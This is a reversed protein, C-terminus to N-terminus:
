FEEFGEDHLTNKMTGQSSAAASNTQGSNRSDGNGGSGADRTLKMNQSGPSVNKLHIERHREKVVANRITNNIKFKEMMEMIGQAQGSMEESASATEEVLASNQQTMNDLEMVAVNIQDIGNKQEESATTIENVIEGVNKVAQVIERLAEGSKNALETAKDVKDVSDNILGGIEKAAGSSRQALNRVEGAVVAFGRGQDGARAAEVAANLALLNTQFAIENIVNIIEAIRKSSQNVENIASVAESVVSGGEEAINLTDGSMKNAQKANDANQGITATSEELTSAIEELSSAQESTRQSLTENGSSIEQVAQALNQNAAIIESVMQELNDASDNLAQALMGLEDKQDMDIRETFDGNAIKQAFDLGKKVPNSIARSIIFTLLIGLLIAAILIGAAIMITQKSDADNAARLEQAVRDQLNILKDTAARLERYEGAWKDLLAQSQALNRRQLAEMFQKRTAAPAKMTGIWADALQKEEATMQTAMYEDKKANYEEALKKSMEARSTVEAWDGHEASLQEQVMNVRIQLLDRLIRNLQRTPQYRDNYFEAFMDSSVNLSRMGQVAIITMLFIFLFSMITIKVGVKLNNFWKGM